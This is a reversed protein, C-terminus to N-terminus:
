RQIYSKIFLGASVRKLVTSRVEVTHWGKTTIYSSLNINADRASASARQTGDVWVTVANSPTDGEYIGYNINHTHNPISHTHPMNHSHSGIDHTHPMKHTHNGVTHTHPMDHRHSSISHTHSLKHTHGTITFNHYHNSPGAARDYSTAADTVSGSQSTTTSSSAGSTTAGGSSTTTASSASSTTAGGSATTSASSAGSTTAGGSATTTASSAGSTTAGGSATTTASSAGSTAGGGSAAGRSYARFKENTLRLYAKDIVKVQDDIYFRLILPYGNDVNDSLTINNTDLLGNPTILTQNESDKLTFTGNSSFSYSAGNMNINLLNGSTINGLNASIMALNSVNLQEAAVEGTYVGNANIKTLREPLRGGSALVIQNATLTGTYIGSPTIYTLQGYTNVAYPTAIQGEETKPTAIWWPNASNNVFTLEAKIANGPVESTIETKKFTGQEGQGVGFTHNETKIVASEGNFYRTVARVADGLVIPSYMAFSHTIYEMNEVGFPFCVLKDGQNFKFSNYGNYQISTDVAM